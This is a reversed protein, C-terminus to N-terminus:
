KFFLQCIVIFPYLPLVRQLKDENRWFIKRFEIWIVASFMGVIIVLLGKEVDNIVLIVLFLLYDGFTLMPSQPKAMNKRKRTFLLYILFFLVIVITLLSIESALKSLEISDLKYLFSITLGFILLDFRVMHYRKDILACVLLTGIIMLYM